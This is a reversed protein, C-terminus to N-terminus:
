QGQEEPSWSAYYSALAEIMDADMLQLKEEMQPLLSERDGSIYAGLATWLYASRQGHLPIGLAVAADPDDPRVHCKACHENHFAEGVGVLTEDFSEGSAIRPMASYHEAIAFVQEESLDAVAECMVPMDGCKRAGDVYAFIAEEIHEAPTGALIPVNDYGVGAGDEGHCDVCSDIAAPEATALGGTLVLITSLALRSTM